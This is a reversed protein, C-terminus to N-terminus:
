PAPAPTPSALKVLQKGRNRGEFVRLLAAPANEIGDMVDV